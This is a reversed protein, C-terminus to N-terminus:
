KLELNKFRRGTGTGTVDFTFTKGIVPKNEILYNIVDWASTRFQIEEIAVKNEDTSYSIKGTIQLAKKAQQTKQDVFPTPVYQLQVIKVEHHGETLRYQQPIDQDWTEEKVM